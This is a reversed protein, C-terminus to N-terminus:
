MSSTFTGDEIFQNMVDNEIEKLTKETWKHILKNEYQDCLTSFWYDHLVMNVKNLNDLAKLISRDIEEQSMGSTSRSPPPPPLFTWHTYGEEILDPLESYHAMCWGSKASYVLLDGYADGQDIGPLHETTLDYCHEFAENM